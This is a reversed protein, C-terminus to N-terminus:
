LHLLRTLLEMATRISHTSTDLRVCGRPPPEFTADVGTMDRVAGARAGKYLGKVDRQVCVELPACLWIFVVQHQGLVSTVIERHKTKPTVFAAVVTKGGRVENLAVTAARRLNESRDEDSFGLDRGHEARFVDGDLLAVEMGRERLLLALAGALTTKGSSPLGFFWFVSPKEDSNM